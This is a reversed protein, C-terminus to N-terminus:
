KKNEIQQKSETNNLPKKTYKSYFIGFIITVGLIIYLIKNTKNNKCCKM